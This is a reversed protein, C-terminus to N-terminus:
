LDFKRLLFLAIISQVIMGGAFSDIAFLSSLGYVRRKSPGLGSKGSDAPLEIGAPLTRVLAFTALGTGSYGGSIVHTGPPCNFVM